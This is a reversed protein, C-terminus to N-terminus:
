ETRAPGVMEGEDVMKGMGVGGELSLDLLGGAKASIGGEAAVAFIDDGEVADTEVQWGGEGFCYGRESQFLIGVALEVPIRITRGLILHRIPNPRM